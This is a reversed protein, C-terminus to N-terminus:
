RGAAIREAGARLRLALPAEAAAQRGLSSVRAGEQMPFTVVSIEWLDIEVLRRRAAGSEKAARQTRFGISLGDVAGASILQFAERGGRTGLALRGEVKLGRADEAVATWVGIPRGPEHQWLMRIGAAGRKALSAAFAGPAIRDGALDVLHFLAAYGRVVGAAEDGPLVVLGRAREEGAQALAGAAKVQLPVPRPVAVGAVPAAPKAAATEPPRVAAVAFVARGIGNVAGM